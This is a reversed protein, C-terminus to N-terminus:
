WECRRGEEALQQRYERTYSNAAAQYRPGANRHDVAALLPFPLNRPVLTYGGGADPALNDRLGRALAFAGTDPDLHASGMDFATTVAAILKECAAHDAAERAPNRACGFALLAVATVATCLRVTRDM